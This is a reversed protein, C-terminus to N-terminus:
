PQRVLRPDFGGSACRRRRRAAAGWPGMCFAAAARRRLPRRIPRSPRTPGLGPGKFRLSLRPAASFAPGPYGPQGQPPSGWPRAQPQPGSPPVSGGYGPQQPQSGNGFLSGLGSSFGAAAQNSRPPSPAPSRRDPNRAAAPSRERRAPAQDQVIVTQALLYPAYPQQRINDAIFAEAERDRQNAAGSRIRDFLGQLLQREEPSMTKEVEFAPELGRDFIHHQNKRAVPSPKGRVPSPKAPAAPGEYSSTRSYISRVWQESGPLGGDKRPTSGSCDMTTWTAGHIRRAESAIVALLPRCSSSMLPVFSM